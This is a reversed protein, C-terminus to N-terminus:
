FKCSWHSKLGKSIMQSACVIQDSQNNRDGKCYQKWTGPWYQYLGVAKGSDGVAKQNLSSECQALNIMRNASLGYKQAVTAIEILLVSKGEVQTTTLLSNSQITQLEGLQENKPAIAVTTGLGGM